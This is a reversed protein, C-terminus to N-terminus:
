AAQPPRTADPVRGWLAWLRLSRFEASPLMDRVVVLSRRSVGALPLAVWWPGIHRRRGVLATLRRGDALELTAAGDDALELARVSGRARLLAQDWTAAAGLALLLLALATGAYGPWVAVLCAAGAGHVLALAGALARSARLELRLAVM